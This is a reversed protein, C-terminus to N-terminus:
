NPTKPGAIFLIETLQRKVLSKNNVHKCFEVYMKGGRVICWEHCKVSTHSPLSSCDANIHLDVQRFKDCM